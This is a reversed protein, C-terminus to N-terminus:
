KIEKHQRSSGNNNWFYFALAGAHGLAEQVSSVLQLVDVDDFKLLYEYFDFARVSCEATYLISHYYFIQHMPQISVNNDNMYKAHAITETSIELNM